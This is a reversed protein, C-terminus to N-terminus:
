RPLGGYGIGGASSREGVKRSRPEIAHSEPIAAPVKAGTGVLISQQLQATRTLSLAFRYLPEYQQSVIQEFDDLPM